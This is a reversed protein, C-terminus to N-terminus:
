KPWGNWHFLAKLDEAALARNYIRVDDIIAKLTYTEPEGPWMNMVEWGLRWYGPYSLAAVNNTEGALEDDITLSMKNSAYVAAAFHWSGDNYSMVSRVVANNTSKDLIGFYVLGGTTMYVHKDKLGSMDERTDSFGAIRGGTRSDTNFWFALTFTDINTFPISTAMYSVADNFYYARKPECFRNTAPSAHYIFGNNKLGSYDKSNGNFSYYGTLGPQLNTLEQEIVPGANTSIQPIDKVQYPEVKEGKAKLVLRDAAEKVAAILGDITYASVEDSIELAGTKVDLAKIIIVYKDGMMSVSGSVVKDAGSLQGVKSAQSETLGALELKQEQLIRSLLSREVITFENKDSLRGQLMESLTETDVKKDKIRSALDLVAVNLNKMNEWKAYVSFPLLFICVFAATVIRNM